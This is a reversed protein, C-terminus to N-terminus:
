AAKDKVVASAPSKAVVVLKRSGTREKTALENVKPEGVATTAAKLTLNVLSVFAAKGVISFIKLKAKLGLTREVGCEAVLVDYLVGEAVDPKEPPHAQYWSRILKQLEEHRKAKPAFAKVLRDLEGFEDVQQARTPVLTPQM